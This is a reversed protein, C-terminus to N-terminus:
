VGIRFKATLAAEKIMTLFFKVWETHNGNDSVGQLLMYYQAAVRKLSDSLPLVPHRLLGREMLFLTNIIRGVRGNCDIFPHIAEFQYHILAAKVLPNASEDYNIYNELDTIAPIMDEEVPAVFQANRLDSGVRGIWVPSTRYEGRYKKEYRQSKAVFYHIQKFLRTSLPLEDLVKIGYDTAEIIDHIERRDEDTFSDGGFCFGFAMDNKGSSLQWSSKAEEQMLSEIAEITWEHERLATLILEAESIISLMEKDVTIHIDQLPVPIFSRYAAAGSLNTRYRM